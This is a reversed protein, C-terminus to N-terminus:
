LGAHAEPHRRVCTQLYARVADVFRPHADCALTAVDGIRGPARELAFRANTGGIDALLRPGDPYDDHNM